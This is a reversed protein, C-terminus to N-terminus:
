GAKLFLMYIHLNAQLYITKTTKPTLFSNM